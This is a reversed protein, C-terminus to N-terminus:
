VFPGLDLRLVESFSSETAVGGDGKCYRLWHNTKYNYVFGERIGYLEEDILNIVRKLDSKFGRTHAVEIIVQAQETTYDYLIIDPVPSNYEGVMMEPLPEYTITGEEYFPYLKATLRAITHQHMIPANTGDDHVIFKQPQLDPYNTM